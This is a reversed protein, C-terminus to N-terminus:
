LSYQSRPLFHLGHSAIQCGQQQDTGDGRGGQGLLAGARQSPRQVGHATTIEVYGLAYCFTVTGNRAIDDDPVAQAGCLPTKGLDGVKDVPARVPGPHVVEVSARFGFDDFLTVIFDDCKKFLHRRLCRLAHQGMGARQGGLPQDSRRLGIQNQCPTRHGHIRIRLRIKQRGM